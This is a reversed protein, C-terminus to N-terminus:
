AAARLVEQVQALTLDGLRAAQYGTLIERLWTVGKARAVQRLEERAADNDVEPVPEPEPVPEVAPEVPIPETVPEAAGNAKQARRTKKEPEAVPTDAVAPTDSRLVPALAALVALARQRDEETAIDVLSFKM